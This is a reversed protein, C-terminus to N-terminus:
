ILQLCKDLPKVFKQKILKALNSWKVDQLQTTTLYESIYQSVFGGSRQLAAHVTTLEDKLVSHINNVARIFTMCMEQTGDYQPISASLLSLKVESSLEQLARAIAAGDAM